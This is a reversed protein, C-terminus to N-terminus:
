ASRKWQRRANPLTKPEEGSAVPMAERLPDTSRVPTGPAYALSAPDLAHPQRQNETRGGGGGPADGGSTQTINGVVAQGGEYVHVHEVRVTQGGGRRLKALAELQATYTRLFKTALNGYEVMHPLETALKTRRLMEM